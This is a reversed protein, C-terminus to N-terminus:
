LSFNKLISLLKDFSDGTPITIRVNNKFGAIHGYDRIYIHNRSLEKIFANKLEISQFEIFVFNGETKDWVKVISETNLLESVLVRRNERVQLVFNEIYGLDQLVAQAAVQALTSVSKPNRVKSLSSIIKESALCYGFRFSALGLAKSFTRSVIINEYGKNILVGSRQKSSFEIYAEDILFLINPYKKLYYEITEIEDCYGTPNNPRVVYVLKPQIIKFFKDLESHKKLSMEVGITKAGSAEAVARFNDYSPQLILVVDNVDIFADIIYEHLADSGAFFEVQNVDVKGYEALLVSLEENIVRPYWNMRGDMLEKGIREIVKPSLGITSENWDLKVSIDRNDWAKSMASKYPVLKSLRQTEFKSM